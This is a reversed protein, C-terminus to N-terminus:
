LVERKKIIKKKRKWMKKNRKVAGEKKKCKQKMGRKVKM